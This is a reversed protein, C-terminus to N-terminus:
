ETNIECAYASRKQFGLLNLLLNSIGILDNDRWVGLREEKLFALCKKFSPIYLTAVSEVNINQQGFSCLEVGVELGMEVVENLHSFEIRFRDTVSDVM